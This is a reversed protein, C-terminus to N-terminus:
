LQFGIVDNRNLDLDPRRARQELSALLQPDRHLAAIDIRVWLLAVGILMRVGYVLTLVNDMCATLIVGMKKHRDDRSISGTGAISPVVRQVYSTIGEGNARSSYVPYEVV